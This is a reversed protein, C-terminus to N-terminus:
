SDDQGIDDPGLFEYIEARLVDLETERGWEQLWSRLYTKLDLVLANNEGYYKAAMKIAGRLNSEADEKHDLFYQCQSVLELMDIVRPEQRGSPRLYILIGELVEIAETYRRQKYLANGYSYKIYSLREDFRDFEQEGQVLLCHLLQPGNSMCPSNLYRAYCQVVTPHFQGLSSTFKDSICRWAQTLGLEFHSDGLNSIHCFIHRFPNEEVFINIVMERALNQFIRAVESYGNLRLAILFDLFMELARPHQERLLPNVVDSAKSFYRRGEAFSKSQMLRIGTYSLHRFINPSQTGKASASDLYGNDKEMFLGGDFAGEFYSTISAFLKEYVLLSQPPLPSDPVEFSQIEPNSFLIQRTQDVSLYTNVVNGQTADLSMYSVSGMEAGLPEYFDVGLGGPGLTTAYGPKPTLPPTWCEIATSMSAEATQPVVEPDLIGKRKFYRLVDDITMTKGRVRFVSDKGIAARQVKMNLMARAETEKTKKDLNWKKIRDKYMKATARLGYDREMVAMVEKLTKKEDAYLRKIMPRCRNWEARTPQAYSLTMAM